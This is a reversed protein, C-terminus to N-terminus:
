RGVELWQVLGPESTPASSHKEQDHCRAADRFWTSLTRRERQARLDIRSALYVAALAEQAQPLRVCRVSELFLLKYKQTGSISKACICEHVACRAIFFM